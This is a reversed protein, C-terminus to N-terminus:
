LPAAETKVEALSDLAAVIDDAGFLAEEIAIFECGTSVVEPLFALDSGLQIIAPIEMMESWWRGLALNRPHPAPKQDYGLKGFLLYDAGREGVEMAQHRERLDGVGQMLVGADAVPLLDQSREWHIGDVQLRGAVQSHDAIFVAVGMNQLPLVFPAAARQLLAMDQNSEYLIVSAFDAKGCFDVLQDVSVSRCVNLTLVFRPLYNIM